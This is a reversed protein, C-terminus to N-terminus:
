EIMVVAVLRWGLSQRQGEVGLAREEEDAVENSVVTEAGM